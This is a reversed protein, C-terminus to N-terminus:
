GRLKIAVGGVAAGYGRGDPWTSECNAGGEQLCSGTEKRDGGMGQKLCAWSWRLTPYKNVEVKTRVDYSTV